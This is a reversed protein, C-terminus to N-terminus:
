LNKRFEKLSNLFEESDLKRQNYIKNNNSSSNIKPEEYRVQNSINENLSTRTPKKDTYSLGERYHVNSSDMRGFVPSIFENPKYSYDKINKNVIPEEVIEEELENYRKIIDEEEYENSSANLAESKKVSDVLQQYSIIAQEEQEEEFKRLAESANSAPTSKINNILEEVYKDKSAENQDSETDEKEQEKQYEEMVRKEIEEDSIQELEEKSKITNDVFEEDFIRKQHRKNKILYIIFIIMTFFVVMIACFIYINDLIFNYVNEM